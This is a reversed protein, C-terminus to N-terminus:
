QVFCRALKRVSQGIFFLKDPLMAGAAGCKRCGQSSPPLHVLSFPFSPFLHDSLIHNVFFPFITCSSLLFFVFLHNKAKEPSQFSPLDLNLLLPLSITCQAHNVYVYIESLLKENDTKMVYELRLLPVM